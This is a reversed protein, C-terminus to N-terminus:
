SKSMFARRFEKKKINIVTNSETNIIKSICNNENFNLPNVQFSFLTLYKNKNIEMTNIM